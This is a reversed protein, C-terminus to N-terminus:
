ILTQLIEAIVDPRSVHPCHGGPVTIPEVGLRTRVSNLMWSPRMTRDETPVIAVSPIHRALEIPQTYLGPTDLSRLTGLAWSLTAFDCDHFLFYTAWARDAGPDIGIWDANFIHTSAVQVEDLLSRSGDPIWAALWVQCVADLDAAIAPLLMGSSSHAVVIPSELDPPLQRRVESAMEGPTGPQLGSLDVAFSRFVSSVRSRLHEWGSPDQTSGHVLVLDTM